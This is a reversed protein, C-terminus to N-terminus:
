QTQYSSCYVFLSISNSWPLKSKTYEQAVDDHPFKCFWPWRKRTSSVNKTTTTFYYTMTTYTMRVTDKSRSALYLWPLTARLSLLFTVASISIFTFCLTVELLFIAKNSLTFCTYDQLLIWNHWVAAVNLANELLSFFMITHQCHSTLAVSM